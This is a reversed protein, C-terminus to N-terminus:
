LSYKKKRALYMEKQSIRNKLVSAENMLKLYSHYHAESLTGDKLAQVIACGPEKDHKCNRFKCQEMLLEIDEYVSQIQDEECWLNLERIGPTDILLCGSEHLILEATTTTHRGKGTQANVQGTKLTGSGFILNILSSKGVGSSGLFAVTEGKVLHTELAEIGLKQYVSICVVEINEDIAYVQKIFYDPTSCLDLKNLVVIPKISKSKAATVYRELRMVNFDDIFDTVIFVKDINAALVQEETSGGVIKGNRIKRGGSVAPKRSFVSKRNGLEMIRYCDNDKKHEIFVFDGVVPVVSSKYRFRGSLEATVIGEEVVVTYLHRNRQIVRGPLYNQKIELGKAVVETYGYLQIM